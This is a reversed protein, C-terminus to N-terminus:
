WSQVLTAHQLAQIAIQNNPAQFDARMTGMVVVYDVTKWTNQFVANKINPDTAVKWHSHANVFPAKGGGPEHLDTWFNDPIIMYANSPVNAKIWTLANRYPVDSAPQFVPVYQGFVGYVLLIVLMLGSAMLGNITAPLYRSVLRDVVMAINLTLFPIAFILYFDFVVGGRALYAIPFIGMLGLLLARRDWFGRVLNALVALFGGLILFPDIPLWSGFLIQFFQNHINFFGGGSRSAQWRLAETMSIGNSGGLSAGGGPFLSFITSAGVPFLQQKFLAYLPYWSLVVLMPLVWAPVAFRGQHEYRQQFVLYIMVPLMFVATEKSLIAIAFTIGSLIIRSLRGWGDLLLNISILLWFMMINDLLVMRQYQIALPSVTFLFAALAAMPITLRLKRAIYYVMPVMALHLLLMFVRGTNIADGFANPGGVLALWGAILIWGAPAHDYTYAYPTLKGERLISWAQQMYIGEDDLRGLTPYHFMNLGQVILAILVLSILIVTESWNAVQLYSWLSRRKRLAGYANGGPYTINNQRSM